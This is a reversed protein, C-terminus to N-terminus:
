VAVPLNIKPHSVYDILKFDKKIDDLSNYNEIRFDALTKLEPNIWLKAKNEIIPRALMEKVGDFQDHYIHADGLSHIFTGVALGCIQAIIHTMVSYSAINVPVGIPVDASRQTLKCSLKGSPSVYFQIFSHCPPLSMTNIEGVNWASIILRRDSPNIKIKEVLKEVQNIKTRLVKAGYHTESGDSHTIYDGSYQLENHEWNVWQKGYINKCNGTSDAWSDWIHNKFKHLTNVNTDGSMFWLLESITVYFPTFKQNVMPFAQQLNYRSEHGFISRCWVGTREHKRDEGNTLIENNLDSYQQM